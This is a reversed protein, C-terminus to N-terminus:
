VFTKLKPEVEEAIKAKGNLKLYAIADRLAKKLQGDSEAGDISAVINKAGRDQDLVKLMIEIASSVAETM